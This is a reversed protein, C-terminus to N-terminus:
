AALRLDPIGPEVGPQAKATVHDIAIGSLSLVVNRCTVTLLCGRPIISALGLFLGM